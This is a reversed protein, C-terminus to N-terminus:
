GEPDAEEGDEDAEAKEPKEDAEDDSDEDEDDEAPAPKAAKKAPKAEPEDDEDEDEVPAPKSKKAKKPAPEEDEDDEDAAPKSKSKGAKADKDKKSKKDPKESGARAPKESADPRLEILKKKSIEAPEGGTGARGASLQIRITNDAVAVDNDTLVKKIEWFEWGCKAMKRIAATVPFGLFGGLRGLKPKSEKETETEKSMTKNNQQKNETLLAILGAKGLRRIIELPSDPSINQTETDRANFSHAQGTGPDTFSVQKGTASIRLLSARCDNVMWVVQESGEYRVIDGVQLRVDFCAEDRKTVTNVIDNIKM